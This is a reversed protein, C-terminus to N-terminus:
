VVCLLLIFNQYYSQVELVNCLPLHSGYDSSGLPLIIYDNKRQYWFFYAWKLVNNYYMIVVHFLVCAGKFPQFSLTKYYLTYPMNHFM